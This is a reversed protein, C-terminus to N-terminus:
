EPKESPPLGLLAHLRIYLRRCIAACLRLFRRFPGQKSADHRRLVAPDYLEAVQNDPTLAQAAPKGYIGGLSKGADQAEQDVDRIARLFQSLGNGVGRVLEPIKKAGVLILILALVLIVEGNGLFM